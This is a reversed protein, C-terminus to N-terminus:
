CFKCLQADAHLSGGKPNPKQAQIAPIPKNNYVPHYTREYPLSYTWDMLEEDLPLSPTNQVVYIDNYKEILVKGSFPDTNNYQINFSKAYNLKDQCLEKYSPLYIADQPLYDLNKTKWVSGKIYIIDNIDLGSELSEAMEVISREGMGYLLLDANSDILISKKLSDSIYDYHALRRLSAEIGGIILPIHPYKAKIAKCYTIVANDPRYGMQGNPSYNDVTRRKKSVYYHNVMSDINGSTVLFGLRPEGLADMWNPKNVDPQPIIGVKFGHAELVRSIIAHGFSPHDVYADGSIYIFDLQEINREILDQKCIPLFM